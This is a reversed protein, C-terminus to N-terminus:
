VNGRRDGIGAVHRWRSVSGAGINLGCASLQLRKCNLLLLCLASLLSRKSKGGNGYKAKKIATDTLPM